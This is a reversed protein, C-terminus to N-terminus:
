RGLFAWRVQLQAKKNTIVKRNVQTNSTQYLENMMLLQLNLIVGQSFMIAIRAPAFFTAYASLMLCMSANFILAAVFYLPLCLMM